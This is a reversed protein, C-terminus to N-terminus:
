PKVVRWQTVPMAPRWGHMTGVRDIRESRKAEVATDRDDGPRRRTKATSERAHEMGDARVDVETDEYAARLAVRAETLTGGARLRFTPVLDVVDHPVGSSGM